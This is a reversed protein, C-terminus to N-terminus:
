RTPEEVLDLEEVQVIRLEYQQPSEGSVWLLWECAQQVAERHNDWRGASMIWPGTVNAFSSNIQELESPVYRRVEFSFSITTHM